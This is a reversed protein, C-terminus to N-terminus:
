TNRCFARTNKATSGANPQEVAAARRSHPTKQLKRRTTDQGCAALLMALAMAAILRIM